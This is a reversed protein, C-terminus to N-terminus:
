TKLLNNERTTEIDAQMEGITMISLCLRKSDVNRIREIVVPHPRPHWLESILNTNLRTCLSM